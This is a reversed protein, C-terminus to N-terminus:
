TAAASSSRTSGLADRGARGHAVRPRLPQGDRRARPLLGPAAALPRPPVRHAPEPRQLPDPDGLRGLQLQADGVRRPPGGRRHREQRRHRGGPPLLGLHVGGRADLRGQGAPRRRQRATGGRDRVRRHAQRRLGLRHRARDRAGQGRPHPLGGRARGERRVSAAHRDLGHAQRGEVRRRRRAARAPRPRHLRRHLDVRSPPGGEALGRGRLGGRAARRRPRGRAPRRAAPAAARLAGPGRAAARPEVEAHLSEIARAAETSSARLSAWSTATPSPSSVACARPRGRARGVRADRGHAPPRLVKGYLLGARVAGRGPRERLPPPRDRHRPRRGQARIPRRRDLPRGADDRHRWHADARAEPGEHARRIGIARQTPPTRSRATPSTWRPPTSAGSRRRWIWRAARARRGRGQSAPPGHLADLPQRLHGHRVATLDTDAMVLRISGLPARLEDAVAQSLSTRMNQGVEVKGTFVTVSGDEAVHLWAALEHRPARVAAGGRGPNRARRRAPGRGARRRGRRSAPLRPPRGRLPLPAPRRARLARARARAAGDPRPHESM